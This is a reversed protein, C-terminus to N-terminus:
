RLNAFITSCSLVTAKWPQDETSSTATALFSHLLTAATVNSWSCFSSANLLLPNSGRCTERHSAEIMQQVSSLHVTSVSIKLRSSNTLSQCHRCLLSNCVVSLRDTCTEISRHPMRVAMVVRGDEWSDILCMHAIKSRQAQSLLM